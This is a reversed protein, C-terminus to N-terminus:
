TEQIMHEQIQLQETFQGEEGMPHSLEFQYVPFQKPVLEMM